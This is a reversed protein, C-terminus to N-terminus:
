LIRDIIFKPSFEVLDKYGQGVGVFLIPKRLRYLLSIATGGKVDADIKTLVFGDIGIEKNFETAMGLLAQGTFSEGIYIKLDPKAVREIEHGMKGYGIIAIKM